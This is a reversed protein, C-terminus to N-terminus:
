ACVSSCSCSADPDRLRHVARALRLGPRAHRRARRRRVRRLRARDPAVGFVDARVEPPHYDSLLSNHTPTIVARGMGAGSRAIILSPSRSRRARHLARVGGLDGRRRARARRAPIRDSYYALPVPLLLAGLTTLAVLTLFGGNSLHFTDRIDPALIGFATLDLQNSFNLGVLVISRSSRRAAASRTSSSARRARCTVTSAGSASCCRARSAPRSRGNSACRPSADRGRDARM